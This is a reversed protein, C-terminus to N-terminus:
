RTLSLQNSELENVSGIALRQALLHHLDMLHVLPWQADLALAFLVVPDDWQYYVQSDEFLPLLKNM